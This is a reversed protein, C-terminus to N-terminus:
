LTCPVITRFATNRWRVAGGLGRRAAAPILPLQGAHAELTAGLLARHGSAMLSQPLAKVFILLFAITIAFEGM